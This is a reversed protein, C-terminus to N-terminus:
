QAPEILIRNKVLDVSRLAGHVVTEDGMIDTLILSGNEARVSSVYECVLNEGGDKVEYVASLCM